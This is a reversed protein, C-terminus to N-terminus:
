TCVTKRELVWSSYLTCIALVLSAGVWSEHAKVYVQAKVTCTSHQHLPGISHLSGAAGAVCIAATGHDLTSSFPLTDRSKRNKQKFSDELAENSCTLDTKRVKENECLYKIASSSIIM